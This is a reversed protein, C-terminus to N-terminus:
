VLINRNFYTQTMIETDNHTLLALITLYPEFFSIGIQPVCFGLFSSGSLPAASIVTFYLGSM